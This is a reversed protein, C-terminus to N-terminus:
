KKAGAEIEERYVEIAIDPCMEACLGCGTCDEGVKLYAPHYGMTNFNDELAICGKPCTIICFGCGKCRERFMKITGKM